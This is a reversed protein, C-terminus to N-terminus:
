SITGNELYNVANPLSVAFYKYKEGVKPTGSWSCLFTTEYLMGSTMTLTSLLDTTKEGSLEATQQTRALSKGLHERNRSQCFMFKEKLTKGEMVDKIKSVNKILKKKRKSGM